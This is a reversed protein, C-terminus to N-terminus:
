AAVLIFFAATAAAAEGAAEAAQGVADPARAECADQIGDARCRRFQQTM